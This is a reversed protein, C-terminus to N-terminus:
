DEQDKNSFQGLSHTHPPPPIKQLNYIIWMEPDHAAMRLGKIPLICVVSATSRTAQVLIRTHGSRRTHTAKLVVLFGWISKINTTFCFFLIARRGYGRIKYTQRSCSVQKTVKRKVTFWQDKSATFQFGDKLYTVYFM